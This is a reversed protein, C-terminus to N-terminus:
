TPVPDGGVRQTKTGQYFTLGTTDSYSVKQAGAAQVLLALAGLAAYPVRMITQTPDLHQHQARDLRERECSLGSSLVHKDLRLRRM